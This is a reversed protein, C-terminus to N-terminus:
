FATPSITLATLLSRLPESTLLNTFIEQYLTM